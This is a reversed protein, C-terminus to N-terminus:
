ASGFCDIGHMEFKSLTSKTPKSQTWRVVQPLVGRALFYKGPNKGNKRVVKLNGSKLLNELYTAVKIKTRKKLEIFKFYVTVGSPHYIDNEGVVL